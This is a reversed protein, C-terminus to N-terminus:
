ISFIFFFCLNSFKFIIQLLFPGSTWDFFFFVWVFRNCISDYIFSTEHLSIFEVELLMITPIQAMRESAWRITTIDPVKVINIVWINERQVKLTLLWHICWLVRLLQKLADRDGWIVKKRSDWIHRDKITFWRLGWLRSLWRFKMILMQRGWNVEWCITKNWFQRYNDIQLPQKIFRPNPSLSIHWFSKSVVQFFMQITVFIM